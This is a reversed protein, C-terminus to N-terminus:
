VQFYSRQSDIINLYVNQDFDFSYLHILQDVLLMNIIDPEITVDLGNPIYVNVASAVADRRQQVLCAPNWELDGGVVSCSEAFM